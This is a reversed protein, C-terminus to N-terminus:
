LLVFDDIKLFLLNKQNLGKPSVLRGARLFIKSNGQLYDKMNKM